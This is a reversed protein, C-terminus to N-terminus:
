LKHNNTEEKENIEYKDYIDINEGCIEFYDKDDEKFFSSYLTIIKNFKKNKFTTIYTVVNIVGNDETFNNNIVGYENDNIILYELSVVDKSTNRLLLKNEIPPLDIIKSYIESKIFNFLKLYKDEDQVIGTFFETTSFENNKKM